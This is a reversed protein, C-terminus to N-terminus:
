PAKLAARGQPCNITHTRVKVRVNVLRITRRARRARRPCKREREILNTARGLEM